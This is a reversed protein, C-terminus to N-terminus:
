AIAGINRLWAVDDDTPSRETITGLDQGEVTFEFDRVRRTQRNWASIRVDMTSPAVWSIVTEVPINDATAPDLQRLKRTFLDDITTM